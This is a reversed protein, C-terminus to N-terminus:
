EIGSGLVVCNRGANKARYLAKDAQDYLAAFDIPTKAAVAGVSVTVCRNVTDTAAELGLALVEQRLREATPFAETAPCDLLAVLFEEGGIRAALDTSGCVCRQLAAAVTRLCMDGQNHGFRDNYSKFLDIDVMLFVVDCGDGKQSLTEGFIEQVGRRNLLGTLPDTRALAALKRNSVELLGLTVDNSRHANYLIRSLILAFLAILPLQLLQQPTFGHFVAVSITVAADLGFLGFAERRALLPFAATLILLYFYNNTLNRTVIELCVFVLMLLTFCWWFARCLWQCCRRNVTSATLLRYALLVAAATLALMAGGAALYVAHVTPSLDATYLAIQNLVEIFFILVSFPVLRHVNTVANKTDLQELLEPPLQPQDLERQRLVQRGDSLSHKLFTFFNM